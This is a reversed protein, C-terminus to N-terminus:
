SGFLCVNVGKLEMQTYTSSVKLHLSPCYRPGIGGDGGQYVPLLHEHDMVIKHTESNTFTQGCEIFKGEQKLTKGMNMYSFAPPPFDSAQRPLDDWDITSALLRAPTGTKLRGLPFELRVLLCIM